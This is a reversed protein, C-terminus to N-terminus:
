VSILTRDASDGCCKDSSDGRQDRNHAIDVSSGDDDEDHDTEDLFDPKATRYAVRILETLQDHQPSAPVTRALLRLEELSGPGQSLLADLEKTAARVAVALGAGRRGVHGQPDHDWERRWVGLGIAVLEFFADEEELAGWFPRSTPYFGLPSGIDCMRALERSVAVQAAGLPAGTEVAAKAQRTYREAYFRLGELALLGGARLDDDPDRSSYGLCLWGDGRREFQQAPLLKRWVVELTDEYARSKIGGTALEHWGRLRKIAAESPAVSPAASGRRLEREYTERRKKEHEVESFVAAISAAGSKLAQEAAQSAMAAGRAAYAASKSASRLVDRAAESAATSGKSPMPAKSSLTDDQKGKSKSRMVSELGSSLVSFVSNTSGSWGISSTRGEGNEESSTNSGGNSDPKDVSAEGNEAERSSSTVFTVEKIRSTSGEAVDAKNVISGGEDAAPVARAM